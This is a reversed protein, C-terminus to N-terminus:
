NSRCSLGSNSSKCDDDDTCNTNYLSSPKCETQNTNFYYGTKCKCTYSSPGSPLCATGIM